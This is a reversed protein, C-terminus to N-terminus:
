SVFTHLREVPWSLHTQKKLAPPARLLLARSRGNAHPVADTKSVTASLLLQPPHPSFLHSPLHQPRQPFPLVIHWEATDGTKDQPIDHTQFLRIKQIILLAFFLFKDHLLKISVKLIAARMSLNKALAAWLVCACVCLGKVFEETQASFCKSICVLASQLCM